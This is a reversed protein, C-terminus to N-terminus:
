PRIDRAPLRGGTPAEAGAGGLLWSSRLQRLLAELEALTQQTMGLLVPVNATSEDINRVIGPLQPTTKRLDAMIGNLSELVSVVNQSIAPLDKSQANISGSLQTVQVATAQLEELLPGLRAVAASAGQLLNELERASTEDAMLRGLTGEGQEVRGVLRGMDGLMGQLDGDPDAFRETIDAVATMARETQDLIPIVRSRIDELTEGISDTPARDPAADLVAYEWDMPEGKGRTIEVYSEGAVGFTKRIVARSDRRVFVAMSENIRAEAHIKQNPEIVIRLVKGAPTGLVEIKSGKTLGFLGDDPLLLNLTKGPDLWARLAEAQILSLVFLVIAALVAAGLWMRQRRQDTVM